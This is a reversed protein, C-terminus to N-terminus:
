ASATGRPHGLLVLAVGLATAALIMGAGAAASTSVEAGLLAPLAILASAVRLVLLPVVVHPRGQWALTVLVLSCAGLAAALAAVIYPPQEGDTLFLLAIDGISLLALLALGLRRM